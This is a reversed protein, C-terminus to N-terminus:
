KLVKVYTNNRIEKSDSSGVAVLFDGVKVFKSNQYEVVSYQSLKNALVFGTQDPYYKQAAEELLPYKELILSLDSRTKYIEKGKFPHTEFYIKELLNINRNDVVVYDCQCHSDQLYHSDNTFHMIGCHKIGHLDANLMTFYGDPLENAKM